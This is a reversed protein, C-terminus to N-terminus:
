AELPKSLTNPVCAESRMDDYSKAHMVDVESMFKHLLQPSTPVLWAMDPCNARNAAYLDFLYCLGLRVAQRLALPCKFCADLDAQPQQLLGLPFKSLPLRLM